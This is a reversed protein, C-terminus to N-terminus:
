ITLMDGKPEENMKKRNRNNHVKTITVARKKKCNPDLECLPKYDIYREAEKKTLNKNRGGDRYGKPLQVGAENLTDFLAMESDYKKGELSKLNVILNPDNEVM